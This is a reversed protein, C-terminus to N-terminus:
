CRWEPTDTSSGSFIPGITSLQIPGVDTTRPPTDHNHVNLDRASSGTPHLTDRSRSSFSLNFHSVGGFGSAFLYMGGNFANVTDAIPHLIDSARDREVGFMESERQLM